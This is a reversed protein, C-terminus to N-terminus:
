EEGEGTHSLCVPSLSTVSSRQAVYDSTTSYRSNQKKYGGTEWSADKVLDLLHTRWGEWEEGHKWFWFPLIQDWPGKGDTQWCLGEPYWSGM